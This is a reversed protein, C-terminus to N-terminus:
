KLLLKMDDSEASEFYTSGDPAKGDTSAGKHLLLRVSDTHGEFIAALIPTIGHKDPLNIDAGKSLLYEIVDVQGFDAAVHLATRGMSLEGNVDFGPQEVHEKVKDLDGNQVSWKFESM